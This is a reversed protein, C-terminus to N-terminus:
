HQFLSIWKLGGRQIFRLLEEQKYRDASDKLNWKIIKYNKIQGSEIDNLDAIQDKDVQEEGTLWYKLNLMLDATNDNNAQDEDTLWDLYCDHSAVFIKGDGCTAAAMIIEGSNQGTFVAQAHPSKVVLIGPSPPVPIDEMDNLIEDAFNSM